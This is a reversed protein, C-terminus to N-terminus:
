RDMRNRNATEAVSAHFTSLSALVSQIAKLEADPPHMAQVDAAGAGSLMKALAKALAVLLIQEAGQVFSRADELAMALTQDIYPGVFSVSGQAPPDLVEANIFQVSREAATQPDPGAGPATMASGTDHTM